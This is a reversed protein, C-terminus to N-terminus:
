NFLMITYHKGSLKLLLPNIDLADGDGEIDTPFFVSSVGGLDPNSGINVWENAEESEQYSRMLTRQNANKNQRRRQLASRHVNDTPGDMLKKTELKMKGVEFQAQQWAMLEEATPEDISSEDDGDSEVMQQEDDKNKSGGEGSFCPSCVVSIGISSAFAITFSFNLETPDSIYLDFDASLM